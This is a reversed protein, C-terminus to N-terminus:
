ARTERDKKKQEVIARLKQVKDRALELKPKYKWALRDIHSDLVKGTVNGLNDLLADLPNKEEDVIKYGYQVRSAIQHAATSSLMLDVNELKAHRKSGTM